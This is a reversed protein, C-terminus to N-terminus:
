FRDYQYWREYGYKAICAADVQHIAEFKNLDEPFIDWSGKKLKKIKYFNKWQSPSIQVLDQNLKIKVLVSLRGLMQNVLETYISQMGRFQYKEAIVMDPQIVELLELIDTIYALDDTVTQQARVWGTQKVTGNELLAWAYNEKGPDFGLVKVPQEFLLKKAKKGM